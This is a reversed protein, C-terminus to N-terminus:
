WSAASNGGGDDNDGGISGGGAKLVMLLCISWLRTPSVSCCPFIVRIQPIQEFPM